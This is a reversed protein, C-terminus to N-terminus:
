QDLESYLDELREVTRSVSYQLVEKRPDFDQSLIEQLKEEMSDLNGSQYRKGNRDKITEDFPKTDPALVPTGCMNAEITTLSFTDATSATAFVDISSYFEPLSDRELFDMFRVNSGATKELNSRHRGEGVILVTGQIRDALELLEEINKEESLRGCYGIVPRELDMDELFSDKVPQFFEDDVGVPLKEVEVDPRVADTSCTVKEFNSLWWSDIRDLVPMLFGALTEGLLGVVYEQIPTHYTYLAPVGHERSYRVGKYSILWPGHCHVVDLDDRLDSFDPLPWFHGHYFPNYVANQPHENEAPEYSSDPYYIHVEHGREELRRKWTRITYSTGDKRPFYSDTFFGIRM